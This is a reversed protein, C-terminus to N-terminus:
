KTEITPLIPKPIRNESPLQSENLIVPTSYIHQVESPLWEDSRRMMSHDGTLRVVDRICWQMREYEQQNLMALDERTRLIRPTMVILLESRNSSQSDFEFFHKIVPIKNLGPISRNTSIKEETILGAFIVTQGDMTNITTQATANNVRPARQTDSIDVMEILSSREVFLALAIMGDPMIRPTVDLTTGVQEFATEANTNTVTSTITGAYPIREGVSIAANRNHITVLRPRSLIQTKNRTELARIFISVSESSASFSFGGTAASPVLSTIGQSGVTGARIATNPGPNAASLGPFGPLNVIGPTAGGALPVGMARDFLISDQLGFEVGRDKSRNLSVSAILVDIAVMQPREDLELIVRRIREYYNPTTSIILSNSIPEAIINTEGQYQELPSRPQFTASNQVDFQRETTFYSNLIPALEEAPTNILKITFMSRNNLNESDLRLLLAEALALDGESGIAVISNTRIEAQFRLGVLTSEGEETGPRVTALQGAGTAAATTTFLNTLLVALDSANGNALTFVRIKSEAAPLQDIQEILAAILPMTDSPATVILSNSRADAVISVNYAVSAPVPHGDVSLMAGRTGISNNLATQLVTVMESAMANKLPFRRMVSAVEGGPVDLERIMTEIELMDRPNAQVILANTRFDSVVSTVQPALMQNAGPRNTFSSTITSAMTTSDAHKLFFVRFHANPNAPTDLKAILEKVTNISEQRGIVLITNPKVLPLMTIPGRRVAYVQQYLQQVLNSVRLSDAHRMPILEIVPENELSLSELQRLMGQIIAVDEPSGQIIVTGFADLIEIQVPGVVGAATLDDPNLGQPLQGTVAPREAQAVRVTERNVIDAVRRAANVNSQQVPMFRAVPRGAAEEFDLLQVIRLSSDVMGPSGTVSVMGQPKNIVLEIATGDRVPLRYHSIGTNEAVNRIPVFRSGLREVLNKEFVQPHLRLRHSKTVANQAVSRATVAPAPVPANNATNAATGNPLQLVPLPHMPIRPQANVPAAPAANVPLAPPEAAPPTNAVTFSVNSKDGPVAPSAFTVNNRPQADLAFASTIPKPGSFVPRDAPQGLAPCITALVITLLALGIQKVAPTKM